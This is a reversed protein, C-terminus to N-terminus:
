NFKIEANMCITELSNRIKQENETYEKKREHNENMSAVTLLILSFVECFKDDGSPPLCFYLSAYM